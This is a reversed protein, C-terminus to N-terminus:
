HPLTSKSVGEGLVICVVVESSTAGFSRRAAELPHFLTRRQSQSPQPVDIDGGQIGPTHGHDLHRQFRKTENSIEAKDENDFHPMRGVEPIEHMDTVSINRETLSEPSASVPVTEPVRDFFLFFSCQFSVNM